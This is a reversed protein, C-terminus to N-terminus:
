PDTEPQDGSVIVVDDLTDWNANIEGAWDTDGEAPKSLNLKPTEDSM